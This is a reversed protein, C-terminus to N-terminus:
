TRLEDSAIQMTYEFSSVSKLTLCNFESSVAASKGVLKKLSIKVQKYQWACSQKIHNWSRRTTDLLNRDTALNLSKSVDLGAFQFRNCPVSSKNDFVHCEDNFDVTCQAQRGNHVM